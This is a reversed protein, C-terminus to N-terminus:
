THVYTHETYVYTHNLRMRPKGPCMHTNWHYVNVYTHGLHVCIHAQTARTQAGPSCMHAGRTCVCTHKLQVHTEDHELHVCMHTGRARVLTDYNFAHTHELHVCTCMHTHTSELFCMNTKWSLVHIRTGCTFTCAHTRPHADAHAAHVTETTCMHTGRTRVHTISSSM